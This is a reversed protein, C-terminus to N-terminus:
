MNSEKRSLRSFFSVKAQLFCHLVFVLLLEFVPLPVDQIHFHRGIRDTDSADRDVYFLRENLVWGM